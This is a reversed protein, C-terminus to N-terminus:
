DAFGTSLMVTRELRRKQIRIESIETMKAKLHLISALSYISAPKLPRKLLPRFYQYQM